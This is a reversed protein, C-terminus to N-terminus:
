FYVISKNILLTFFVFFQYFKINKNNKSSFTGSNKLLLIAIQPNGTM